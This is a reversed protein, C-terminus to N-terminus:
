QLAGTVLRLPDATDTAPHLHPLHLPSCPQPRIPQGPSGRDPLDQKPRLTFSALIEQHPPCPATPIRSSLSLTSQHLHHHKRTQGQRLRRFTQLDQRLDNQRDKPSVIPMVDQPPRLRRRLLGRLPYLLSPLPSPLSPCSTSLLPTSCDPSSYTTWSSFSTWSRPGPPHLTPKRVSPDLQNPLSTNLCRPPQRISGAIRM